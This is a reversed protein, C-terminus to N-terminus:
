VSVGADAWLWHTHQFRGGCAKRFWNPVDKGLEVRLSRMHTAQFPIWLHYILAEGGGSPWNNFTMSWCVNGVFAWRRAGPDRDVWRWGSDGEEQTGVMRVKRLTLGVWHTVVMHTDLQVPEPSLLRTRWKMAVGVKSERRRTGASKRLCGFASIRKSVPFGNCVFSSIPVSTLNRQSATRLRVEYKLSVASFFLLPKM